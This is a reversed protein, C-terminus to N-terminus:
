KLAQDLTGAFQLAFGTVLLLSGYIGATREETMTSAKHLMRTLLLLGRYLLAMGTFGFSIGLVLKLPGGWPGAWEILWELRRGILVDVMLLLIVLVIAVLSSLTPRISFGDALKSAVNGPAEAWRNVREVGIADVALLLAGVIEAIMGVLSLEAGFSLGLM